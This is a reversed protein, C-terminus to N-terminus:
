RDEYGLLADYCEEIIRLNKMNGSTHHGPSAFCKLFHSTLFLVFMFYKEPFNSKQFTTKGQM